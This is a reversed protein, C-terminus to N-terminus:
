KREMRELNYYIKIDNKLEYCKPFYWKQEKPSRLDDIEFIFGASECIDKYYDIRELALKDQEESDYFFLAYGLLSVILFIIIGFVIQKKTLKM